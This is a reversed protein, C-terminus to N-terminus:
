SKPDIEKTMPLLERLRPDRLFLGGWLMIGIFLPAVLAVEGAHVHTAIAGGLYGTLLIVGLVRTRPVFYLVVCALEILGLPRASAPPYNKSWDDLFAGPQLIKFMASPLFALLPLCSFVWGTRVQWTPIAVANPNTM